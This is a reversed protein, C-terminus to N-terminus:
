AEIIYNRIAYRVLGAVTHCDIREMINARHTEATKVSIGLAVAVERNSHGEALLQVVARQRDTLRSAQSYTVHNTKKVAQAWYGDLVTPGGTSTFFTKGHRLAEVASVLDSEPDSKLLYGRVGAELARHILLDTCHMSLLLVKTQSGSKALQRTADLGNLFPLGLDLIAVQPKIQQTIEIAERGNSAQAVVEWGPQERVLACIGKRFIEQADAVLLSLAGM